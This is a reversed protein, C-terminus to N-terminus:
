AAKPATFPSLGIHLQHRGAPLGPQYGFDLKFDTAGLGAKSAHEYLQGFSQAIGPLPGDHIISLYRNAPIELRMMRQPVPTDPGAVVGILERYFGKERSISVAVFGDRMSGSDPVLGSDFLRKWAAPVAKPLENWHAEVLLGVVTLAPLDITEIM